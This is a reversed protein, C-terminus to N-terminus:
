LRTEQILELFFCKLGNLPHNIAVILRAVVPLTLHQWKVEILSDHVLTKTLPAFFKTVNQIINPNPYYESLIM